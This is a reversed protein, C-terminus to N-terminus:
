IHITVTVHGLHGGHGYICMTFVMLIRRIWFWFDSSRSGQLILYGLNLFNKYTIIRPQGQGTYVSCFFFHGM